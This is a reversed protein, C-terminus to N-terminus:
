AAEDARRQAERANRQQQYLQRDYETRLKPDSLIDSIPAFRVNAEPAGGNKGPHESLALARYALSIDRRTADTRVELIQYYQPFAEDINAFTAM